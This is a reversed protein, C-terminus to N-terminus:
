FYFRFGNNFIFGKGFKAHNELNEAVANSYAVGTSFYYYMSAPSTNLVFMEVGVSSHFGQYSTRTSFRKDPLILLPGSEVFVRCREVSVFNYTISV